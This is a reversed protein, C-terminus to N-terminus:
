ACLPALLDELEALSAVRSLAPRLPKTGPIGKAYALLRSRMARMTPLEDGYHRSCIAMRTHRLM